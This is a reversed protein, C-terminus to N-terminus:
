DSAARPGNFAALPLPASFARCGPSLQVGGVTHDVVFTTGTRLDQVTLELVVSFHAAGDIDEAHIQVTPDGNVMKLAFPRSEMVYRRVAGATLETLSVRSLTALTVDITLAKAAIVISMEGSAVHGQRADLLASAACLTLEEILPWSGDHHHPDAM